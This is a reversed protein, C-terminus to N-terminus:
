GKVGDRDTYPDSPRAILRTPDLAAPARHPPRKPPQAVNGRVRPGSWLAPPLDLYAAMAHGAAEYNVRWGRFQPWADEPSREIVWGATRLHRVADDFEAYSLAVPDEPQPDEVVPLRLTRALTRVAVYGVRLLPRTEAPASDPCLALHLAAADLLALLALLWSRRPDPSRFYLLPRYTAHSETIEAAWETWREYLRPLYGVNGILAQRALLEPGWPPTGALADLMTVLTERRNFTGYLTPLYAILLAIVSLGSAAAIFVIAEPAATNPAAFGLTFLSSGSTRLATPLGAATFPWLLLAFSIFLLAVWCTLLAFLFLPASTALLGERRALDRVGASVARYGLYVARAVVTTLWADVNRPMLLTKVISSGTVLLVCIGVAFGAWAAVGM